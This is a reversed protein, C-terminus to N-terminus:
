PNVENPKSILLMSTRNLGEMVFAVAFALFLSDRTDRWFSLFFVGADDIIHSDPGLSIRQDDTVRGFSVSSCFLCGHWRHTEM